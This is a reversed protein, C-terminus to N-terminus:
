GEMPAPPEAGLEALRERIDAPEIVEVGTGFGALQGAAADGTM